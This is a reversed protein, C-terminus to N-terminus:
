TRRAGCGCSPRACARGAPAGRRWHRRAKAGSAPPVAAAASNRAHYSTQRESAAIIRVAGRQAEAAGSRNDAITVSDGDRLAPTGLRAALQDLQAASGRFPVVVDVAPCPSV